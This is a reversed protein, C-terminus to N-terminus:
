NQNEIINTSVLRMMEWCEVVKRVMGRGEDEVAKLLRGCRGCDDPWVQPIVQSQCPLYAGAFHSSKCRLCLPLFDRSQALLTIPSFGTFHTLWLELDLMTLFRQALGFDRWSQRSKSVQSTINLPFSSISLLPFTSSSSFIPSSHSPHHLTIFFHSHLPFLYTTITTISPSPSHLHTTHTTYTNPPPCQPPSM